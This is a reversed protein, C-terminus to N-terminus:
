TPSEQRAETRGSPMKRSRALDELVGLNLADLEQGREVGKPTELIMPVSEFRRDRVIRWFGELGIHGRGLGAHRDVRSGRPRASDNLHWVRIQELGILRHLGDILDNYAVRDSLPYGAAFLHCTDLCVGMRDPRGLEDLLWGLHEVRYGLNTGQGATSELLLRVGCQPTRDLVATFGDRIRELGAEEGRGMHAGPHCVLDGIGLAEAREVEVVMAEISRKWLAPDPSGLNILYSNHGIVRRIGLTECACRFAETEGARFPRAAWQNSSKTFVQLTGFGIAAAAAAAADFGKGISMHAGFLPGVRAPVRPSRSPRRATAM